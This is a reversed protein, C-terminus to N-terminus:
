MSQSYLSSLDDETTPDLLRRLRDRINGRGGRYDEPDLNGMALFRRAILEAPVLRRMDAESTRSCLEELDENGEQMRVLDQARKIVSSDVDNMAACMVGLSATSRGPALQFLFTVQDEPEAADPELHVAMHVFKVGGGPEIIGREFIDHFHTGALVKPREPGLDLFHVLFAAFLAAGTETSTGKGFEDALVLSRRTGFNLTFAAQKLDVMFASEDDVVTERTAIRTLIRDTIGIRARTAPVYSGIHALFIIIAVQRMYVSKGSNNPGTLVLMSPTATEDPADVGMEGLTDLGRGGEMSCSNPIFTPVLLEQLAHRGDVIEVINECTMQPAAWKYKEAAVAFAIMSDLEGFLDSASIVSDEHQLVAAALEMMVEIEEQAIRSPLDGFQADLDMMLANKYYVLDGNVFSPDWPGDAAGQGLYFGEGTSSDLTVAVLFGLEPLITCYRIHKTAWPPAERRVTANAEPLMQCIRAFDAKLGDLTQSAGQVIETHGTDKSLEFDITALIMEGISLFSPTDISVGIKSFLAVRSSGSLSAVAEKIQTAVMAFRLLARWEGIRISLQGRIRDVGIKVYRLITKSNKVKKLLKRISVATERNEPRLLVGVAQQREQIVGIDTSPRFLMQRLRAKGQSTCALSQFLGYVSLSEKFRAESTNNFQTQPNPHLEARLIQLSILADASVLMTNEPTNSKIAKVCFSGAGGEEPFSNEAARRREIDNLIAGACGISLLSELNVSESLRTLKANKSSNLCKAPVDEVPFVELADAPRPGLDLDALQERGTDYDFEASGLHRFIYSGNEGSSEGDDLRHADRELLEILSGPARNPVIITTPQVRLVLTEAAELGGMAVDEELYLTEDLAIYYACGVKDDKDMDIAM